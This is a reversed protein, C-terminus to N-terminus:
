KRDIASPNTGASDRRAEFGIREPRIDVVNLGDPLGGLQDHAVVISQWGESLRALEIMQKLKEQDLLDFANPSGSLTVQVKPSDPASVAWGQPADALVVPVEVTQQINEVGRSAFPTWLLVAIFVAIAAIAWERRSAVQLWPRRGSPNQDEVFRELVQQGEAPSPLQRLQGELAISITGREESVVLVLADCRESLGLAATHRTGREGVEHLNTSLPLHAAFREIRDGSLIVAGDHAPSEHNFLSM